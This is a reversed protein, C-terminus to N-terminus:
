RRWPRHRWRLRMRPYQDLAALVDAETPNAQVGTFIAPGELPGVVEGLIGSAELGKDTVVLPRTMGLRALEGALSARAGAGFLIRNPFTFTALQNTTAAPTTIASLPM